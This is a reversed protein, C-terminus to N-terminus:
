LVIIINEVDKSNELINTKFINILFTKILKFFEESRLYVNPYSLFVDTVMSIIKSPIKAQFKELKQFIEFQCNNVTNM